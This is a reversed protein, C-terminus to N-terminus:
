SVSQSQVTHPLNTAISSHAVQVAGKAKGKWRILVLVVQSQGLLPDWRQEPPEDTFHSLAQDLATYYSVIGLM